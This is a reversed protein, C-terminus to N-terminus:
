SRAVRRGIWAAAVLAPLFAGVYGLHGEQSLVPVLALPLSLAALAALAASAQAGWAPARGIAWAGGLLALVGSLPNTLLWNRNPGYADLLSFAYLAVDIVGVLALVFGLMAVGAGALRRRGAAELGALLGGLALGGAWMLPTHNPPQPAPWDLAGNPHITCEESVLPRDSGDPWRLTVTPLHTAMQAPAFMSQWVTQARDVPAGALLGWGFWAWPERALHRLVEQRPTLAAPAQLQAAIQGDTVEDLLDRITTACSNTRWHFPASVEEARGAIGYVRDVFAQEVAPPLSLRQAGASRDRRRYFKEEGKFNRVQWHCSLDGLVLGAAPNQVDKDFAGFELVHDVNNRADRLWIAAHGIYTNPAQGPAAYLVYQQRQAFRLKDTNCPPASGDLTAQALAGMTWLLAIV